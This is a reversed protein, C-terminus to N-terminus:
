SEVYRTFQAEKIGKDTATVVMDGHYNRFSDIFGDHAMDSYMGPYRKDFAVRTPKRKHVYEIISAVDSKSHDEYTYYGM